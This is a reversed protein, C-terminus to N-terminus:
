IVSHIRRVLAQNPHKSLACRLSAWLEFGLGIDLDPDYGSNAGGKVMKKLHGLRELLMV